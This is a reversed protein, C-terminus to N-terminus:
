RGLLGSIDIRQGADLASSGAREALADVLGRIEGTPHLRRAITWLTDGSQVVVEIPTSSTTTADVGIPHNVAAPSAPVTAAADAGLLTVVGVAAFALLGALALGAVLTRLMRGAVPAANPAIPPASTPSSSSANPDLGGSILRLGPVAPSATSSATSSATRLATSAATSRAVALKPENVQILFGPRNWPADLEPAHETDLAPDLDL